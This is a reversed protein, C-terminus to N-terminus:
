KGDQRGNGIREMIMGIRPASHIDTIGAGYIAHGHAHTTANAVEYELIYSVFVDDSLPDHRLYEIDVLRYSRIPWRKTYRKIDAAIAQRSTPGFRYYEAGEVFFRAQQEPTQDPEIFAELFQKVRAELMAQAVPAAAEDARAPVHVTAVALASLALAQRFLSPM